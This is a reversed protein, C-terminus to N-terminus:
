LRILGDRLAMAVTQTRNAAELKRKANAAHEQVTRATIRLLNGIERASKGRAIWGLVEVERPTLTGSRREDGGTPLKVASFLNTGHSNDCCQPRGMRSQSNISIGTAAVQRPYVPPMLGLL